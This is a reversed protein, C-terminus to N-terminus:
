LFISRKIKEHVKVIQPMEKLCRPSMFSTTKMVCVSLHLIAKTGKVFYLICIYKYLLKM